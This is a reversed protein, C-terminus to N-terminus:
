SDGNLKSDTAKLFAQLQKPTLKARELKENTKPQALRRKFEDEQEATVNAM